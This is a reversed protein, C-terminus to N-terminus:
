RPGNNDRALGLSEYYENKDRYMDEDALAILKDITEIDSATASGVSLHVFIQKDKHMLNWKQANTKVRKAIQATQIIDSDTLLIVMEDGGYRFVLEGKRVSRKLIIAAERLVYDGAEHGFNDNIFKLRNLDVMILSLPIQLLRAKEKELELIHDFYQRNYLGTLQDITAEFMTREFLWANKIASSTLSALTVLMKKRDSAFYDGQHNEVFWVGYVDSNVIMPVAMEIKSILSCTLHDEIPHVFYEEDLNKLLEGFPRCRKLAALEDPSYNYTADYLIGHTARDFLLIGGADFGVVNQALKVVGDLVQKINLSSNVLQAAEFLVSMEQLSKRLARAMLERETVDRTAIVVGKYAGDVFISSYYNELYRGNREVLKHWEGHTRERLYAIKRLVAPHLDESHCHLVSHGVMSNADIQLAESAEHNLYVVNQNEDIYTLGMKMIDLLKFM